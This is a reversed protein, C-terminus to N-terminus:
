LAWTNGEYIQCFAPSFPYGLPFSIGLWNAVRNLLSLTLTALLRTVKPLAPYSLTGVVFWNSSLLAVADSAPKNKITFFFQVVSKLSMGVVTFLAVVLPMCPDEAATFLEVSASPAPAAKLSNFTEINSKGKGEWAERNMMLEQFSIESSGEGESLEIRAFAKDHEGELEILESEMIRTERVAAQLHEELEKRDWVLTELEFQMEHLHQELLKERQLTTLMRYPLSVLAVTWLLSKRFMNVPFSIAAKVMKHFMMIVGAM